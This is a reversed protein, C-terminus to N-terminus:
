RKVKLQKPAASLEDHEAAVASLVSAASFSSNRPNSLTFEGEMGTVATAQEGQLKVYAGTLPEGTEADVLRGKVTTQAMALVSLGLMGSLMLLRAKEQM